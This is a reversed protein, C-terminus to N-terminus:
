KELMALAQDRHVYVVKGNNLNEYSYRMFKDLGKNKFVIRIARMRKKIDEAYDLAVKLNM